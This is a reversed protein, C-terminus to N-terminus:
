PVEGDDRDDEDEDDPGILSDVLFEGLKAGIAAAMSLALKAAAKRGFGRLRKKDEDSIPALM